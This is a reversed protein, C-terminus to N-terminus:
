EWVQALYPWIARANNLCQNLDESPLLLAKMNNRSLAENFQRPNTASNDPAILWRTADKQQEEFMSKGTQKASKSLKVNIKDLLQMMEECTPMKYM